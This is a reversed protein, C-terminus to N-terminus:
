FFRFRAYFLVVLLFLGLFYLDLSCSVNINFEDFKVFNFNSFKLHKERQNLYHSVFNWETIENKKM